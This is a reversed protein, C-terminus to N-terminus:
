DWRADNLRWYAQTGILSAGDSILKILDFLTEDLTNREDPDAEGALLAKAGSRFTSPNLDIAARAALNAGAALCKNVLDGDTEEFLGPTNWDNCGPEALGAQGLSIASAIM